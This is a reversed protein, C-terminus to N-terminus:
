LQEKDVFFQTILEAIERQGLENPHTENGEFYQGSFNKIWPGDRYDNYNPFIPHYSTSLYQTLSRDGNFMIHSYDIYDYGRHKKDLEGYNLMMVFKCGIERLMKQLSLIYVLHNDKFFEVDHLMYFYKTSAYDKFNNLHLVTYTGNDYKFWRIDPPLIILVYDDKDISGCKDLFDYFVLPLSNGCTSYNEYEMDHKEAFFKVFNTEHPNENEYGYSWSDGFGFVKAM